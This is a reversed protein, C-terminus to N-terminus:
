ACARAGLCSRLCSCVGVVFVVVRRSLVVLCVLCVCWLM